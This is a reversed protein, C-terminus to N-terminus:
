SNKIIVETAGVGYEQFDGAKFALNEFDLLYHHLEAKLVGTGKGHIFVIKRINNEMAASLCNKVHQMQTHLRHWDDLGEPFDVLQELHLDVEIVREYKYKNSSMYRNLLGSGAKKQKIPKMSPSIDVDDVIYMHENDEGIILIENISVEHDFGDSCGVLVKKDSLIAKIEGKLDENIFKVKHGISIKM